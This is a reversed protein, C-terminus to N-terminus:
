FDLSKPGTIVVTGLPWDLTVSQQDPQYSSFFLSFFPFGLCDGGDCWFRVIPEEKQQWCDSKAGFEERL